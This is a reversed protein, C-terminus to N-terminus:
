IAINLLNREVSSVHIGIVLMLSMYYKMSRENCKTESAKAVSQVNTLHKVQTLISM